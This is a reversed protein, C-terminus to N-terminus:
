KSYRMWVVDRDLKEVSDLKFEHLKPAALEKYFLAPAVINNIVKPLVLLSIEDILEEDIVSGNISGGGELCIKEIEFKTKLKTFVEKFNVESEGAFIYSVNKSKLYALFEKPTQKTVIMILNFKGVDGLDLFNNEWRLTGKTDIGVAYSNLENKFIYDENSDEVKDKYEELSTGSEKTFEQMTVRGCMWANAMLKDQTANYLDMYSSFVSFGPDKGQVLGYTIKGDLTIMMHCIVYTRDPNM